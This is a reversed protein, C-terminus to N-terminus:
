PLAAADLGAKKFVALKDASVSQAVERFYPALNSGVNKIAPVIEFANGNELVTKIDSEVSSNAAGLTAASAQNWFAFRALIIDQDAPAMRVSEQMFSALEAPREAVARRILALRLWYNGNTPMCSIAHVFYRDGLSMADAWADYDLSQNQRDLDALIVTAGALVIDSRCYEGSTVSDALKAYRNLVDASVSEGAQLKQALPFLSGFHATQKLQLAGMALFIVCAIGFAVM